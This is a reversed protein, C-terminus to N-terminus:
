SLHSPTKVHKCDVSVSEKKTVPALLLADKSSEFPDFMLPHFLLTYLPFLLLQQGPSEGGGSADIGISLGLALEATSTLVKDDVQVRLAAVSRM